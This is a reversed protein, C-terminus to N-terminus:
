GLLLRVLWGSLDLRARRILEMLRIKGPGLLGKEGLRIRLSIATLIDPKAPMNLKLIV